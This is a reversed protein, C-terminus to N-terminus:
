MTLGHSLCVCVCVCVCVCGLLLVGVYFGLHYIICLLLALYVSKYLSNKSSKMVTYCTNQDYEGENQKKM